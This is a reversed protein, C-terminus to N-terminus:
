NLFLVSSSFVIRQLLGATCQFDSVFVGQVLLYVNKVVEVEVDQGSSSHVNKKM